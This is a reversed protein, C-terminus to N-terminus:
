FLATEPNNNIKVLDATEAGTSEILKEPSLEVQIGIRGGSVVASEARNISCDIFTKYNKIMGIPSCGGRVYGTKELLDKVALMEIKKEGAAEAAKKLDLEKGAPIVFVYIEGGTGKTVLTKYILEPNKGIKLAVSVADIIGDEATYTHVTFKIKKRELLRVANTKKIKEM